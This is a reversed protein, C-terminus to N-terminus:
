ICPVLRSDRNEPVDQRSYSKAFQMPVFRGVQSARYQSSYMRM